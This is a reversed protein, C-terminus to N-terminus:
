KRYGLELLKSRVNLQKPRERGKDGPRAACLEKMFVECLAARVGADMEKMVKDCFCWDGDAAFHVVAVICQGMLAPLKYHSALRARETVTPLLNWSWRSKSTPDYFGVLAVDCAPFLGELQFYDALFLLRKADREQSM